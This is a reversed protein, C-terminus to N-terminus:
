SLVPQEEKGEERRQVEKEEKQSNTEAKIDRKEM